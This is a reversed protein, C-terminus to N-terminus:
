ASPSSVIAVRLSNTPASAFASRLEFQYYHEVTKEGNGSGRVM